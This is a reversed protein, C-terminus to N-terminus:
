IDTDSYILHPLIGNCIFPKEPTINLFINGFDERHGDVIKEEDDMMVGNKCKVELFNNSFVIKGRGNPFDNDFEGEFCFGDSRIFLGKGKMVGNEYEGKYVDGNKYKYVGNGNFNNKKFNGEYRDGVENILIGYGDLASGNFHGTYEMTRKEWKIKGKGQFLGNKVEGEYTTGDGYSFKGIGSKQGRFFDGEYKEGNISYYQGKGHPESDSIEGIYREGSKYFIKGYVLKGQRWIGEILIDKSLLYFKGYGEMEYCENWNGFYINGNKYKIPDLPYTKIKITYADPIELLNKKLYEKIDDKISSNFEEQTIYEGIEPLKQKDFKQKFKLLENSSCQIINLSNNTIQVNEKPRFDEPHAEAETFIIKCGCSGM